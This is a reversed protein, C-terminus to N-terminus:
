RNWWLWIAAGTFAGALFAVLILLWEWTSFLLAFTTM